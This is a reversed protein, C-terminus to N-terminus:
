DPYMATVEGMCEMPSSYKIYEGVSMGNIEAVHLYNNWKWILTFTNKSVSWSRGLVEGVLRQYSGLLETACQLRWVVNRTRLGRRLSIQGLWPAKSNVAFRESGPPACPFLYVVAFHVPIHGCQVCSFLDPKSVRMYRLGDNNAHVLGVKYAVMPALTLYHKVLPSCKEM